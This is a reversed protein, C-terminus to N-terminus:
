IVIIILNSIHCLNQYLYRWLIYQCRQHSVALEIINHKIRYINIIRDKVMTLILLIKDIIISFLCKLFM